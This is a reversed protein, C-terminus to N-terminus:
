LSRAAAVDFPECLAEESATWLLARAADDALTETPMLAAPGKYAATDHKGGVLGKGFQRRLNAGGAQASGRSPM